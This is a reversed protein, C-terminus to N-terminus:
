DEDNLGPKLSHLCLILTETKISIGHQVHLTKMWHAAANGQYSRSQWKTIFDHDQATALPFLLYSLERQQALQCAAVCDM